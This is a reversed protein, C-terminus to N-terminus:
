FSSSNQKRWIESIQNGANTNNLVVVSGSEAIVLSQTYTGSCASTTSTFTFSTTGSGDGNVTYTGMSTVDTSITGDGDATLVATGNIPLLSSGQIVSGQFTTAYSGRISRKSFGSGAPADARQVVMLACVAGVTMLSVRIKM